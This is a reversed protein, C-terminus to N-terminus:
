SIRKEFNIRPDVLTYVFDSILNLILGLLAFLYLTGFVVPYDRNQVAEFGLLGLGDLSFIVEILVSGTFLMGILMAPFGAIVILMANRFVHRYLIQNQTLGKARATRCYNKSLEELFANKTLFTLGALGGITLSIVPLCIHWLYDTIKAFFGLDHWNESVLGRLPFWDLYRGGAFVIILFIAFLFAPTAYTVTLVWSSAVDFKSGQRVAKRIGLPISILYILLTSFVGLSVSVPMKELILDIVKKDQYFSKGFDFLIYNKIMLLFRELPPRDFGFQKEIEKKLSEQLGQAGRYKNGSPTQGELMAGTGGINATAEVSGREIKSMMQEVPGGPAMQVFLFNITMIGLLTVPIFLLRKLFYSKKM